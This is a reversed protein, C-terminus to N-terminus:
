KKRTKPKPCPTVHELIRLVEIAKERDDIDLIYREKAGDYPVAIEANKMLNELEKIIKIYVTNDCILVIPKNNIYVVYEGFMKKYKIEGLNCIQESVYEVFDLTSAM